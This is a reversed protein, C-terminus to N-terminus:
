AGRINGVRDRHAVGPRPIRINGEVVARTKGSDGKSSVIPRANRRGLVSLRPTIEFFDRQM